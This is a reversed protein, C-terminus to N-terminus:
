RAGRRERRWVPGMHDKGTVGCLELLTRRDDSLMPRELRPYKSDSDGMGFLDSGTERCSVRFLDADGFLYLSEDVRRSKPVERGDNRPYSLLKGPAPQATQDHREQRRRLRIWPHHHSWGRWSRFSLRVDTRDGAYRNGQLDNREDGSSLRAAEGNQNRSHMGQLRRRTRRDPRTNAGITPKAPDKPGKRIETADKESLLGAGLLATIKEEVFETRISLQSALWDRMKKRMFMANTCIYVIRNQALLGQVLAEIHPYILPEGGCISVMPANCETAAGLCDELSMMDKLSTSYERIRGCGTCTLNCTHLPELQLVTAFKKTGRLKHGIIYAAIKTTLALPFIM